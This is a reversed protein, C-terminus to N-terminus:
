ANWQTASQSIGEKVDSSIKRNFIASAGPVGKATLDSNSRLPDALFVAVEGGFAGDLEAFTVLSIEQNPLRNSLNAGDPGRPNNEEVVSIQVPESPDFVLLPLGAQARAGNMEDIIRHVAALASPGPALQFIWHKWIGSRFHKTSDFCQASAPVHAAVVMVVALAASMLMQNRRM